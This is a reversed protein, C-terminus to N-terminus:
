SREALLHSRDVWRHKVLGADRLRESIVKVANPIGRSELISFHVECILARCHQDRLVNAMGAIVEGEFGEVDIKIVNPARYDGSRVVSDGTRVTVVVGKASAVGGSQTVLTSVGTSFEAAPYLLLDEDLAGLATEVVRINELGNLRANEILRSSAGSDPEFAVVVGNPGTMAALLTSYVGINSGIDWVVDGPRIISGLASLIYHDDQFSIARRYESYSAVKMRAKWPPFDMLVERPGEAEYTAKLQGDRRRARFGLLRVLGLRRALTRCGVAVKSEFM